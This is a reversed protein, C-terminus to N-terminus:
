SINRWIIQAYNTVKIGAEEALFKGLSSHFIYL